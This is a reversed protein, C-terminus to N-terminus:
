EHIIYMKKQVHVTNGAPKNVSKINQVITQNEETKEIHKETEEHEELTSSQDSIDEFCSDEITTLCEFKNATTNPDETSIHRCVCSNGHEEDSCAQLVDEFNDTILLAHAGSYTYSPKQKSPRSFHKTTFNVYQKHGKEDESM